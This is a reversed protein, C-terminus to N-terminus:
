GTVKEIYNYIQQVTVNEDTLDSDSIEIGFEDEISMVLQLGDLSDANFDNQLNSEPKIDEIDICLQESICTKIKKIKNESLM